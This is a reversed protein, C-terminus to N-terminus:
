ADHSRKKDVILFLIGIVITIIGFCLCNESVKAKMVSLFQWYLHRQEDTLNSIDFARAFHPEYSYVFLPNLFAILVEAVGLLFLAVLVIKKM